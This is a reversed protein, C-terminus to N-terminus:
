GRLADVPDLKAAQKAPFVGAMVGVLISFLIAFVIIRIRIWYPVGFSGALYLIGIGLLIGLVGGIASIVVSEILFVNTIDSETAGVSKLIGIERTRELVAMFMTNAVGIAGVISAILTILLLFASLLTLIGGVTDKIFDATIVSFDKDTPLVKHYAILKQEISDKIQSIDAGDSAQIYIAFVVNKSLQKAFLDKGDEYSIFILSDDHEMMTGGLKEMIGVVRYDKGNITIVNGVGVKNKGFMKNAVDNGLVAVRKEGNLYVRGNEIRFYNKFMDFMQADAGAVTSDVDTGKFGLSVRGENLRAVTQVGAIGAIASADREYLKGSTTTFSIQSSSGGGLAMPVVFLMNPGFASLQDNIDRQVGESVSTIVVLAIVGIVVGLITLWSRLSSNKMNRIAYFFADIFEM